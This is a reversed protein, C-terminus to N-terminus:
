HGALTVTLTGETVYRLDEGESEPKGSAFNKRGAQEIDSPEWFEDLHHLAILKDQVNTGAGM